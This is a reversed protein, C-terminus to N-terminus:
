HTRSHDRQHNLMHEKEAHARKKKSEAKAENSSPSPDELPLPENSKPNYEERHLKTLGINARELPVMKLEKEFFGVWLSLPVLKLNKLCEVRWEDLKGRVDGDMVVRNDPFWKEIVSIPM